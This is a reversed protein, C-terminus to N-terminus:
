RGGDGGGQGKFTSVITQPKSLQHGVLLAPSGSPWSSQMITLVWRRAHDLRAPISRYLGVSRGDSLSKRLILYRSIYQLEEHGQQPYSDLRKLGAVHHLDTRDVRDRQGQM